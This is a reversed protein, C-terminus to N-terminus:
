VGLMTNIMRHKIGLARWYWHGLRDGEAIAKQQRVFCEKGRMAFLWGRVQKQEDASLGAINERAVQMTELLFYESSSVTKSDPHVRFKSLNQSLKVPAGFQKRVRYFFEFDFSFNLDERLPHLTVWVGRRWFTSSQLIIGLNTQMHTLWQALTDGPAVKMNGSTVEKEYISDDDIYRSGGTCWVVDRRKSFFDGITRLSGPALLDDSNIWCMIEGSAKSFGKNLAHSQGRDPESVWYTLKDAYSKIIEVSSDSSGGDIIIYELNPYNQEMVSQITEELFRGQNYSPTIVSIKPLVKTCQSTIM